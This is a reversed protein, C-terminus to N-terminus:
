EIKGLTSYRSINLLVGVEFLQMMLSTGGYSFFPLSAGTVPMLGTVVCLNVLTQIAFKATIGTALLCGFKDRANRAIYFGRYIFYAFMIMVLIAGILGLEECIVSFIFDNAPEPLYLYKQRSRGLGLGWIGGSGIAIFSQCAQWGKNQMDIFPDLWVRIRTQVHELTMVCYAGGIVGIIGLPVFYWLRMGAIFLIAFGTLIIIVTASMHPELYLLFAVALLALGYPMLGKFTRIKSNYISAFSSFFLIIATKAIESPQFGFVWRKAGNEGRGILLVLILLVIAAAYLPVSFYHYKHYDFFSVILMAVIGVAAFMGQRMVFYLPTSIMDSYYAKPYSATFLSILGVAMLLFTILLLPSDLPMKRPREITNEELVRRSKNPM